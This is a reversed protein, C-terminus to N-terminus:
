SLNNPLWYKMKLGQFILWLFGAMSYYANQREKPTGGLDITKKVYPFDGMFVM